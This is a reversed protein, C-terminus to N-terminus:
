REPEHIPLDSPGFIFWGDILMEIGAPSGTWPYARIQDLTRRGLRSRFIEFGDIAVGVQEDSDYGLDFREEMETTIKPRQVM